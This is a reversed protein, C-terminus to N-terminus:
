STGHYGGDSSGGSLIFICARQALVIVRNKVLTMNKGGNSTKEKEMEETREDTNKLTDLKEKKRTVLRIAQNCIANSAALDMRHKKCGNIFTLAQVKTKNDVDTITISLAM